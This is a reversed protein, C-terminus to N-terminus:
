VSHPHSLFEFFYCQEGKVSHQEGVGLNLKVHKLVSVTFHHSCTQLEVARKPDNQDPSATFDATVYIRVHDAGGHSDDLNMGVVITSHVDLHLSLSTKSDSLKVFGM